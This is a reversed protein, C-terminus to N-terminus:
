EEAHGGAALDDVNRADRNQSEPVPLTNLSPTLRVDLRNSLLVHVFPIPAQEAAKKFRRILEL